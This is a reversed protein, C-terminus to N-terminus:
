NTLYEVNLTKLVKINTGLHCVANKRQISLSLRLGFHKGAKQDDTTKVVRSSIVKVLEKAGLGWPVLPEM